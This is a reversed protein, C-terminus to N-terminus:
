HRCVTKEPGQRRSMLTGAYIAVHGCQPCKLDASTPHQFTLSEDPSPAEMFPIGEGCKECDVAVYWKDPETYKTAPMIRSTRALQGEIGFLRMIRRFGFPWGVGAPRGKAEETDLAAM